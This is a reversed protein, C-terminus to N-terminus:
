FGRKKRFSLSSYDLSFSPFSSFAFVVGIHRRSLRRHLCLTRSLFSRVSFLFSLSMCMMRMGERKGVMVDCVIRTAHQITYEQREKKRCRKDRQTVGVMLDRMRRRRGRVVVVTSKGEMEHRKMREGVGAESDKPLDNFKCGSVNVIHAKTRRGKM